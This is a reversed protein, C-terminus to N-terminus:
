FSIQHRITRSIASTGSSVICIISGKSQYFFVVDTQQNFFFGKNNKTVALTFPFNLITCVIAKTSIVKDVVFFSTNGKYINLHYVITCIICTENLDMYSPHSVLRILECENIKIVEANEQIPIILKILSFESSISVM